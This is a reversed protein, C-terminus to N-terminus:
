LVDSPFYSLPPRDARPGNDDRTSVARPIAPMSGHWDIAVLGKSTSAIIRSPPIMALASVRADLTISIKRRGDSHWLELGSLVGIGIVIQDNLLGATLARPRSGGVMLPEFAPKRDRLRWGQIWHENTKTGVAAILVHENGLRVVEASEVDAKARLPRTLEELTVADVLHLDREEHWLAVVSDGVRHLQVFSTTQLVRKAPAVTRGTALDHRELYHQKKAPDSTVSLVITRDGLSLVTSVELPRVHRVLKGVRKGSDADFVRTIDAEQDAVVALLQGGVVGGGIDLDTERSSPLTSMLRGTTADVASAESLGAILLTVQGPREVALMTHPATGHWVNANPEDATDLLDWVRLNTGDVSVLSKSGPGDHLALNGVAMLSGRLVLSPAAKTSVARARIERGLAYWLLPEERDRDLVAHFTYPRLGSLREGTGVQRGDNLNVLRVMRKPNVTVGVPDGKLQFFYMLESVLARGPVELKRGVHGGSRTLLEGNVIAHCVVSTRRRDVMLVAPGTPLSGPRVHSYGELMPGRIPMRTQLNWLTFTRRTGEISTFVGIVPLEGSTSPPLIQDVRTRRSSKDRPRPQPAQLEAVQRGTDLDWMVLGGDRGGTIVVSRGDVVATAVATIAEHTTAVLRHPTENQWLAWPVSWARRDDRRLRDDFVDSGWRRAALELYSLGDVASNRRIDHVATRYLRGVRALALPERARLLPLLADPNAIVLFRPDTILEALTGAAAAHAALHSRIYPRTEGLWDPTGDPLTAITSILAATFRREVDTVDANGRLYEAFSEHFPRYVSVGAERDEVIFSAADRQVEEIDSRGYNRGSIRSAVTEWLREWPLGQGKAYALPRLIDMVRQREKGFRELDADYADPLTAPLEKDLRADWGRVTIDIPAAARALRTSVLRAILFSQRASDAVVRAVARAVDVDAYPSPRGAIQGRILRSEVYAVVDDRELYEPTDLDIAKLNTGFLRVQPRRTGVILRVNAAAALPRLVDRAIREADASEDLADLVIRMPKPRANLRDFVQAYDDRRLGLAGAILGQVQSISKGRAHIALDVGGAAPITDRELDDLLGREDLSKRTEVNALAVIRSLVASKGSGPDGTVVRACTDSTPEALWAVLERLAARRGSFFWGSEGLETGQAKPIWHTTLEANTALQAQTELDLGAVQQNFRPNPLFRFDGSVAGAGLQARQSLEWTTLRDNIGSVIGDVSFYQQSAAGFAAHDLRETLVEELAKAFQGDQAEDIPRGAALTWFGGRETSRLEKVVQGVQALMEGTGKGSFCTDVIVWVHRPRAGDGDWFLGVLDSSRLGTGGPNQATFDRTVLYHQTLQTIYGHGAFYVVVVDSESRGGASFWSSVDKRLAVSTPDLALKPRVHEYGFHGTFLDIVRKVDGRVEELFDFSKDKCASVGIAILFRKQGDPSAV